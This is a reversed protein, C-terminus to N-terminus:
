NKKKVIRKVRLVIACIALVTCCLVVYSSTPSSEYYVANNMMSYREEIMFTTLWVGLAPLAMLVLSDYLMTKKPLVRWQVKKSCLWRYIGHQMLMAVIIGLIYFLATDHWHGWVAVSLMMSFTFLAIDLFVILAILVISFLM